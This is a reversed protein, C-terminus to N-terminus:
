TSILHSFIAPFTLFLGPDRDQKVIQYNHLIRSELFWHYVVYLRKILEIVDKVGAETEAAEKQLRAVEKRMPDVSALM